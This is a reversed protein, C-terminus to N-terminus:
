CIGLDTGDQTVEIIVGDGIVQGVRPTSTCLNPQVILIGGRYADPAKDFYAIWTVDMRANLVDRLLAHDGSDLTVYEVATPTLPSHCASATLVVLAIRAFLGM